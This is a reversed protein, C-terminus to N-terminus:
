NQARDYATLKLWVEPNHSQGTQAFPIEQEYKPDEFKFNFKQTMYCILIKLNGEALVKGFCVRPGGHFPVFSCNHRKKGEPTLSLPNNQDFREPLMEMPRIWQASSHGLAELNISFMEGKEFNYKGLKM